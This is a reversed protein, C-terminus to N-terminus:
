RGSVALPRSGGPEYPWGEQAPAVARFQFRVGRSDDDAFRYAYRFRGRRDTRVTRFESWRLGPLRFQLQVTKGGAPIEAGPHAIAGGFVVPAGGVRAVTRSVGLRLRGPVGHRLPESSAGRLTPTPAFSVGVHRSPGPRLRLHFHGNKGTMAETVRQLPRSGADFRETVKVVRGALPVRRGALLRGGVSVEREDLNAHLTTSVKLPGHLRMPAGNGRESTSGVNGARDGVTARFEFEGPPASESDWRAVLSGSSTETPLPTFSASSGVARVAITGSSEDLGSLPDAAHAEIREPDTPSQAAFHLRPPARDIRVVTTEPESNAWGNTFAGDAVNGAADRAYHAVTHVGPSIVTVSARDGPVLTPAGGDVRIATFPEGPGETAMGSATDTATATLRLPRDSWGGPAGTLRTVPDTWDVRLEATAVQASQMGSGSVAVARVQSTGEPLYAITLLDAAAGGRLDTEADSCTKTGPCPDAGGISVAYGRIGSLPETGSPQGLRLSYPFSARGLWADPPQPDVEGPRTWDFRLTVFVPAGYNGAADELWIEVRYAGPLAPVTLPQISTAPWGLENERVTEGEPNLLRYHVAALPPAGDRPPNTWHVEFAPNPHWREEGGDVRLDLPELSAARAVSPLAAVALLLVAVVVLGYRKKSAIGRFPTVAPKPPAKM